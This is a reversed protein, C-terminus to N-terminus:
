QPHISASMNSTSILLWTNAMPRPPVSGHLILGGSYQIFWVLFVLFFGANGTRKKSAWRAEPLVPLWVHSAPFDGILPGSPMPTSSRFFIRSETCCRSAANHYVQFPNIQSKVMLVGPSKVMIKRDFIPSYIPCTLFWNASIPPKVM